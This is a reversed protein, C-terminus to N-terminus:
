RTHEKVGGPCNIGKWDRGPCFERRKDDTAGKKTQTRVGQGKKEQQNRLDVSPRKSSAVGVKEKKRGSKESERDSEQM